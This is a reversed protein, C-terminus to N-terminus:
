PSRAFPATLGVKVRNMVVITRFWKVSKNEYFMRRALDEYERMTAVNIILIFDADGTVYYCQQVEPVSFATKLANLESIDTRDMHVETIITIPRGAWEPDIVAVNGKIVGGDELRRIRRQVAATSLNVKEGIVRLATTNSQELIALIALDFSDLDSAKLSGMADGTPFINRRQSLYDAIRAV